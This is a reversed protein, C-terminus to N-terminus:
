WSRFCCKLFHIFIDFIDFVIYPARQLIYSIGQPIDAFIKSIFLGLRPPLYTYTQNENNSYLRTITSNTHQHHEQNSSSPHMALQLYWTKIPPTSTKGHKTETLVGTETLNLLFVAENVTRKSTRIVRFQCLKMVATAM